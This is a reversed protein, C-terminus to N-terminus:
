PCGRGGAVVLDPPRGLTGTHEGYHYGERVEDGGGVGREDRALHLPPDDAVERGHPLQRVLDHRQADELPRRVETGLCSM